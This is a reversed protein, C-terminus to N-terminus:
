QTSSRPINGGARTRYRSHSDFYSKGSYVHQLGEWDTENLKKHLRQRLKIRLPAFHDTVARHNTLGSLFVLDRDIQQAIQPVAIEPHRTIRKLCAQHDNLSFTERAVWAWHEMGWSVYVPLMYERLCGYVFGIQDNACEFDMMFVITGAQLSGLGELQTKFQLADKASDIAIMGIPQHYLNEPRLTDSTIFGAQAEAKPYVFQVTDKWLQLFSSNEASFGPYYRKRKVWGARNVIAKYNEAGAFIDYARYAHDRIGHISLMGTVICKSSLGAFPGLEVVMEQEGVASGALFLPLCAVLTGLNAIKKDTDRYHRMRYVSFQADDGKPLMPMTVKREIADIPDNRLVVTRRYSEVGAMCLAINSESHCANIRTIEAAIDPSHLHERLLNVFRAGATKPFRHLFSDLDDIPSSPMRIIDYAQSRLRRTPTRDYFLAISLVTAILMLPLWVVFSAICGRRPTKAKVRVM